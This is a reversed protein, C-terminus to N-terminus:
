EVEMAAICAAYQAPDLDSVTETKFKKKLIALVEKRGEKGGTAAARAKCADNVDDVTVKKTKGKKPAEDEEEEDGSEEDEEEEAEEDEEEDEEEKEVVKSKKASKKVPTAEEEDDEEPAVTATNKKDLAGGKVLEELRDVQATLDALFEKTEAGALLLLELKPMAKEKKTENCFDEGTGCGARRANMIVYLPAM